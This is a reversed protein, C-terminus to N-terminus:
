RVFAHFPLNVSTDTRSAHHINTASPLDGVDKEDVAGLVAANPSSEEEPDSSVRLLM